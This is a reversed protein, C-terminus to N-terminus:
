RWRMDRQRTLSSFASHHVWAGFGRFSYYIGYSHILSAPNNAQDAEELFVATGAAQFDVVNLFSRLSAIIERVVQDGEAVPVVGLRRRERPPLSM